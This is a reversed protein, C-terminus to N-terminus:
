KANFWKYLLEIHNDANKYYRGDLKDLKGPHLTEVKELLEMRSQDDKPAKGEAFLKLADRLIRATKKAGLLKLAELTEHARQGSSNSFYQALGGNNIERDLQDIDHIMWEDPSLSEAGEREEKGFIMDAKEFYWKEEIPLKVPEPSQTSATVGCSAFIDLVLSTAGGGRIDAYTVLGDELRELNHGAGNLGAITKEAWEMFSENFSQALETELSMQFEQLKEPDTAASDYAERSFRKLDM